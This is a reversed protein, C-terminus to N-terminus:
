SNNTSLDIREKYSEFDIGARDFHKKITLEVASQNIRGRVFKTLGPGLIPDEKLEGPRLNLVLYAEQDVCEGITMGQSIKGESDRVIRIVPEMNESLLIGKRKINM